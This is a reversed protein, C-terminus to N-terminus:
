VVEKASDINLIVMMEDDTPSYSIFSEKLKLGTVESIGSMLRGITSELLRTKMERILDLNGEGGSELLGLEASGMLRGARSSCFTRRRIPACHLKAKQSSPTSIGPSSAISSATEGVIMAAATHPAGHRGAPSPTTM